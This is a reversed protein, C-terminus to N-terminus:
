IALLREGNLARQAMVALVTWYGDSGEVLDAQTVTASREVTPATASTTRVSAENRPSALVELLGQVDIEVLGDVEHVPPRYSHLPRDVMAFYLHVRERNRGEGNDDALLRVGVPILNRPDLPVGLEEEFERSGDAPSEGTSLHGTVSLDLKLPFAAKSAARRQLVVSNSEPRLVLCHFVQHWLGERHVDSRTRTAITIGTAPNVVDLREPKSM